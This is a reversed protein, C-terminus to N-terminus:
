GSWYDKDLMNAAEECTDALDRLIFALKWRKKPTQWKQPTKVLDFLDEFELGHQKLLIAISNAQAEADKPPVFKVHDSFAKIMRKELPVSDISLEIKDLQNASEECTDAFMYLINALHQRREPTQWNQPAKVLDYYLDKITAGNQELLMAIWYVQAEGDKLRVYELSGDPIPHRNGKGFAKDFREQFTAPDPWGPPMRDKFPARNSDPM